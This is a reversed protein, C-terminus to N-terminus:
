SFLFYGVNFMGDGKLLKKEKATPIGAATSPRGPRRGKEPNRSLPRFRDRRPAGRGRPHRPHFQRNAVKAPVYRSKWVRPLRGRNVKKIQPKYFRRIYNRTWYPHTLHHDHRHSFPRLFQPTHSRLHRPINRVLHDALPSAPRLQRWRGGYSWACM